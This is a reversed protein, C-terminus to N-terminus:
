RLQSGATPHLRLDQTALFADDTWPAADALRDRTSVYAADDAFRTIWVAAHEDRVPLAPFNNPAYETELVALVTAGGAALDPAIRDTLLARFADDVPRSRYVVTVTIISDASTAESRSGFRPYATGVLLPRLLLVDDSDLMTANAAAAHAKWVPGYYFGELAAARAPMSDFGRLWVFRDPDDLDRFQGIVHSGLDEQSEVFNADFLDILTDRQGPVLTYQRLEIIRSRPPPEHDPV